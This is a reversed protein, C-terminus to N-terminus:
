KITIDFDKDEILDFYKRNVAEAQKTGNIYLVNNKSVLRNSGTKLLGDRKLGAVLTKINKDTVVM